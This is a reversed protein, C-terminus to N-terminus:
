KTDGEEKFQFGCYHFPPYSYELRASTQMRLLLGYGIVLYPDGKYLQLEGESVQDAIPGPVNSDPGKLDSTVIYTSPSWSKPDDLCPDPKRLDRSFSQRLEVITQKGPPAPYHKDGYFEFLRARWVRLKGGRAVFDTAARRTAPTDPIPKSHAYVGRQFYHDARGRYMLLRWVLDLHEKPDLEQWPPSTFGSYRAMINGPCGQYSNLHKLLDRCLPRDQAVGGLSPDVVWKGDQAIAPHPLLILILLLMGFLTSKWEQCLSVRTM